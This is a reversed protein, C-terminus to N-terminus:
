RKASGSISLSDSFEVLPIGFSAALQESHLSSAVAQLGWGEKIKRGIAEIAYYATTGTGLGVTMGPRVDEVAKEAAAKKAPELSNNQM